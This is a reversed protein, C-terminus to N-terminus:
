TESPIEAALRLVTARPTFLVRRGPLRSRGASNLMNEQLEAESQEQDEATSEPINVPRRAGLPRAADGQLVLM